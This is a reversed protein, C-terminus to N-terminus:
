KNNKIQNIEREIKENYLRAIEVERLRHIRIKEKIKFKM